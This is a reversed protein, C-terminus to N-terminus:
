YAVQNCRGHIQKTAIKEMTDYILKEVKPIDGEEVGKMGIAFSPQRLEDELGFGVIAEGLGSEELALRLPSASSGLLLNDLFGVALATEQDFPKDNLLWNIQVFCKQAEEDEGSAYTKVIRKPEKFFPQSAISSDVEKADFEDLFGSLLKLRNELMTTVMSGSAHM